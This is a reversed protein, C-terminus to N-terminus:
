RFAEILKLPTEEEKKEKREEETEKPGREKGERREKKREKRRSREKKLKPLTFSHSLTYIHIYSLTLTQIAWFSDM